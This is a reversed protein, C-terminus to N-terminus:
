RPVISQCLLTRGFTGDGLHGIIRYKNGLVQDIHFDFHGADPEDGSNESSAAENTQHKHEEGVDHEQQRRDLSEEEYDSYYSGSARDHSESRKM